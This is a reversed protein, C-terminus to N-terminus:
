HAERDNHRTGSAPHDHAGTDIRDPLVLAAALIIAAGVAAFLAGPAMLQFSTMPPVPSSAAEGPQARLRRWERRGQWAIFAGLLFILAGLFYAAMRFFGPEDLLYAFMELEESGHALARGAPFAAFGAATAALVRGM